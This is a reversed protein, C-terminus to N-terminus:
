FWKCRAMRTYYPANQGHWGHINLAVQVTGNTYSHSKAMFRLLAIQHTQRQIHRMQQSATGGAAAYLRGDAFFSHVVRWAM